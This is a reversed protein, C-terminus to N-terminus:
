EEITPSALRTQAVTTLWDTEGWTEALHNLGDSLRRRAEDARGLEMQARGLDSEVRGLSPTIYM